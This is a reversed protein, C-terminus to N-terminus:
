EHHPEESENSHVPAGARVIDYDDCHQTDLPAAALGTAGPAAAAALASVRSELAAIRSTLEAFTRFIASSRSADGNYDGTYTLRDDQAYQSLGYHRIHHSATM